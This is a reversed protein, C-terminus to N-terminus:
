RPHLGRSMGQGSSIHHRAVHDLVGHRALLRRSGFLVNYQEDSEADRALPELGHRALEAVIDGVLWQERWFASEEVEIKLVDCRGLFAGAGSLVTRTAGEVDMWMAYPGETDAFEHDL